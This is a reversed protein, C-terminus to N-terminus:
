GTICNFHSTTAITKGQDDKLDARLHLDGLSSEVLTYHKGAKFGAYEVAARCIREDQETVGEKYLLLELKHGGPKVQFYRGDKLEVGDLKEALMSNQTEERLGVWADSPDPKPLHGACASLLGFAGLMPVLFLTKMNM